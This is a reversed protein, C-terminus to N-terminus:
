ASEGTMELVSAIRAPEWRRTRLDELELADQSEVNARNVEVDGLDAEDHNEAHNQNDSEEEVGEAARTKYGLTGLVHSFDAIEEDTIPDCALNDALLAVLEDGEQEGKEEQDPDHVEHADQGKRLDRCRRDEGNGDCKRENDVQGPDRSVGM